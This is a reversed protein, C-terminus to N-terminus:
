SDRDDGVARCREDRGALEEFLKSHRDNTFEFLRGRYIVLGVQMLFTSLWVLSLTVIVKQWPPALGAISVPLYAVTAIALLTNSIRCLLERRHWERLWSTWAILMPITFCLWAVMFFIHLGMNLNMPIVGVMGLSAAALCGWFGCSRLGNRAGHTVVTLTVFFILLCLALSILSGNFIWPNLNKRSDGLESLYNRYISFSEKHNCIATPVCYIFQVIGLGAVLWARTLQVSQDGNTM